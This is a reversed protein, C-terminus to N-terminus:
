PELPPRSMDRGLKMLQRRQVEALTLPEQGTDAPQDDALVRAVAAYVKGLLRDPVEAGELAVHVRYSLDALEPNCRHCFGHDICHRTSRCPATM